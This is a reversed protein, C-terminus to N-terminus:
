FLFLFQTEWHCDHESEVQGDFDCQTHLKISVKHGLQLPWDEELIKM